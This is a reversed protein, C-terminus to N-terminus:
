AEWREATMNMCNAITIIIVIIIIIIILIITTVLCIEVMVFNWGLPSIDSIFM